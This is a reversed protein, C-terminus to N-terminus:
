RSAEARLRATLAEMEAVKPDVIEAPKARSVPLPPEEAASDDEKGSADQKTAQSRKKKRVPENVGGASDVGDASRKKRSKLTLNVAEDVEGYIEDDISEGNEEADAKDKRPVRPKRPARPKKSKSTTEAETMPPVVVEGTKFTELVASRYEEPLTELGDLSDDEYYGM